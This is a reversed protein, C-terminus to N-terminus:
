LCPYNDIGSSKLETVSKDFYILKGVLYEPLNEELYEYVDQQRISRVRYCCPMVYLGSEAKETIYELWDSILNAPINNGGVSTMRQVAFEEASRVDILMIKDKKRLLALLHYDQMRNKM